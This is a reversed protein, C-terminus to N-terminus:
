RSYLTLLHTFSSFVPSWHVLCIFEICTLEGEAVSLKPTPSRHSVPSKIPIRSTYSDLQVVCKSFTDADAKDGDGQLFLDGTRSRMNLIM